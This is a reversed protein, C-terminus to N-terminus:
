VGARFFARNYPGHDRSYLPLTTWDVVWSTEAREFCGPLLLASAAGRWLLPSWNSDHGAIGIARTSVGTSPALRSVLMKEAAIPKCNADGQSIEGCWYVALAMPPIMCDLGRPAESNTNELRFGRSMFGARRSSRSSCPPPLTFRDALLMVGTRRAVPRCRRWCCGSGPSLRIPRAATSGCLLSLPRDARRVSILWAPATWRCCFRTGLRWRKSLRGALSSTWRLLVM